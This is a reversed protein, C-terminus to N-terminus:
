DMWMDIEYGYGASSESGEAERSHGRTPEQPANASVMCMFDILLNLDVQQIKAYHVMAESFERPDLEGDGDEDFAILADAIAKADAKIGTAKQFKGLGNSLETASIDGDGDVDWIRFLKKLRSYTFPDIQMSNDGQCSGSVSTDVSESHDGNPGDMLSAALDEFTTRAMKLLSLILRGFQKLDLMRDDNRNTMLLLELAERDSPKAGRTVPSRKCARAVAEFPVEEVPSEDDYAFMEFLEVVRADSIFAFVTKRKKIETEIKQESLAAAEEKDAAGNGASLLLQVIILECFESCTMELTKVMGFVYAEFDRIDLEGDGDTDYKAVMDIAKDISESFSLEDNQRMAEALETADVTGGSDKDIMRFLMQVKKSDNM